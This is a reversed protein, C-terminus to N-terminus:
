KPPAEWSVHNMLALLPEGALLVSRATSLDEGTKLAKKAREVAQELQRAGTLALAGSLKHLIRQLQSLDNDSLATALDALDEELSVKLLHYLDMALNRQGRAREIALKQDFLSELNPTTLALDPTKDDVEAEALLNREPSPTQNHDLVIIQPSAPRNVTAPLSLQRRLQQHSVFREPNTSPTQNGQDGVVACADQYDFLLKPVRSACGAQSLHVADILILDTKAIKIASQTFREIPLLMFKRDLDILLRTLIARNPDLAYSTLVFILNQSQALAQTKPEGQVMVSQSDAAIHSNSM